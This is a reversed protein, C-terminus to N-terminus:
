LFKRLVKDRFMFMLDAMFPKPDLISFVYYRSQPNLWICLVSFIESFSSFKLERNQIRDRTFLICFLRKLEPVMYACRFGTRYVSPLTAREGKVKVRYWEWAFLAGASNALPLSGWFRGNIEMLASQKSLPDYRYEVMAVGEWNLAKLLDLSKSRLESHESSSIPECLTSFGGEPPWEHVRRHQFFLVVEGKHLLFMQGLGYGPCFEQVVPFYGIGEYRRLICELDSHDYAYEFKEFAIGNRELIPLIKNPDSWKVVVPFRFNAKRADIPSAPEFMRPLPVGVDKALSYVHSKDLVSQLQTRSPILFHVGQFKHKQDDLWLLDGESVAMVTGINNRGVIDIIDSLQSSRDGQIIFGEKLWRSFLGVGRESRAVGYVQLGKGGLERVLTLGIPTDVGVVLVRERIGLNNM